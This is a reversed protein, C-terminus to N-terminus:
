RPPLTKEGPESVSLAKEEVEMVLHLFSSVNETSRGTELREKDYLIGFGLIRDRPAMKKIESDDISNLLKRQKEALISGRSKRFREVTGADFDSKEFLQHVAQKSVGLLKGIQAYSLGKERLPVVEELTIGDRKRGRPVVSAAVPATLNTLGPKTSSEARGKIEETSGVAVTAKQRPTVRDRKKRENVSVETDPM